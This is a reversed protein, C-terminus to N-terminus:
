RNKKRTKEAAAAIDAAQQGLASVREATEKVTKLEVKSTLSGNPKPLSVRRLKQIPGKAALRNKVLITGAAGAVAAGGAILPTKAKSAAAKVTQGADKLTLAGNASGSGSRSSSTRKSTSGGSKSTSAKSGSSKKATSSKAQAM